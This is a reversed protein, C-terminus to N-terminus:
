PPFLLVPLSFLLLPAIPPLFSKSDLIRKEQVSMMIMLLVVVRAADEFSRSIIVTKFPHSTNVGKSKRVTM